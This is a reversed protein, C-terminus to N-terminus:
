TGGVADFVLGLGETMWRDSPPVDVPAARYSLAEILDVASGALVTTGVPAPGTRVHVEPGVDVVFHPVDTAEVALTGTRTSGQAALFIPGVAAAYLLCATVEDQELVLDVGLPLVIDREHVWSDWLAHLVVAPVPLHGPPAEAVATWSDADLDGIADALAQNSEDFQVLLEAPSQESMAAVMSAPTSVPDFGTLFRTPEGALGSSISYTWFRNTTVLHAIVDRVAWERCRSPTSWQHDDLGALFSALRRRQRLTPVSPDDVPVDFTLLSKGGYRPTVQM